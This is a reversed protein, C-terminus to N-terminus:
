QYAAVIRALSGDRRMGALAQDYAEALARMDRARTFVLYSHATESPPGAVVVRDTADLQRLYSLGVLRSCIVTDIRGALLMRFIHEYDNAYELNRFQGSAAATDFRAGYSTNKVLGVSAGALSAFDGTFRLSSDKRVFFVYDQALLPERPYLMTQERDPTRKITFLGDAQGSALMALARTWPYFEIVVPLKMRAFAERVIDAVMGEARTPTSVIYPPYELTVLRLTEQAGPSQWSLLSCAFLLLRFVRVFWFM